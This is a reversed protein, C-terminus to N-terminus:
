SRASVRRRGSWACTIHRVTAGAATAVCLCGMEVRHCVCGDRGSVYASPGLVDLGPTQCAVRIARGGSGRSPVLCQCWSTVSSVCSDTREVAFVRWGTVFLPWLRLGVRV